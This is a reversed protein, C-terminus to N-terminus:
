GSGSLGAVPVLLRATVLDDFQRALALSFLRDQVLVGAEINEEQAAASTNASTVLAVEDDIVVCKAHFHIAADEITRPDHYVEPVRGGPWQTALFRRAFREEYEARTRMGAREDGVTLDFFMRVRLAPVESMRAALPAFLTAGSGLSYSSVLVSRRARSFLEAVVVKTDRTSAGLREPGTWVLEVKPARAAAEAREAVVLRCIRALAAESGATRRLEELMQVASTATTFARLGFRTLPGRVHGAELADALQLLTESPIELAGM